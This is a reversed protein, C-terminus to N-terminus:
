PIIVERHQDRVTKTKGVVLDYKDNVNNFHPRLMKLDTGFDGNEAFSLSLKSDEILTQGKYTVRYVPTKKILQFSLIIHGDPSELRINKQALAPLTIILLFFFRLKQWSKKNM